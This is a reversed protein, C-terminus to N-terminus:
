FKYTGRVFYTRGLPDAYRPDYGMQFNDGVNSAPPDEDFINKIGATVELNKFGKYTGSINYITYDSVKHDQYGVKVTSSSNQDDYGRTFQQQFNVGWNQYNWYLNATHKWRIIPADGVYTGLSSIWEGDKENQYKYKIVYTGDIGFGFRGTATMPTIYNLSVDVGSTKLDGMNDQTTIIHNLTGDPNRVFKDAYKTPNNFIDGEPLAAIQNEVEINFYDLTLVLNKIPELVLGATFSKSEEPDLDKNGGNKCNSSAVAM